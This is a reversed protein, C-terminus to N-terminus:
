DGSWRGDAVVLLSSTEGLWSFAAAYGSDDVRVLLPQFLDGEIALLLHAVEECHEPHVQLLWGHVRPDDETAEDASTQATAGGVQSADLVGAPYDIGSDFLRGSVSSERMPEVLDAILGWRSRGPMLSGYVFLPYAELFRTLLDLQPDAGPPM